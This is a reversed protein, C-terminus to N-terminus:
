HRITVQSSRFNFTLDRYKYSLLSWFEFDLSTHSENAVNPVHRRITKNTSCGSLYCRGNRHSMTLSALGKTRASLKWKQIQQISIILCSWINISYYMYFANIM